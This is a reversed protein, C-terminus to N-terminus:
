SVSQRAILEMRNGFPDRTEFRDFGPIPMSELIICGAAELKVRWFDIDEVRYAVHAKTLTRDVGDETGIHLAQGGVDVWLGGRGELSDPKVIEPLGIVGCYFARAIQEQGTPITIQVHDVAVPNQTNPKLNQTKQKNDGSGQETM